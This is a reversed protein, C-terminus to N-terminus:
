DLLREFDFGIDDIAEKIIDTEVLTDMRLLVKNEELNVQVDEIGKLALLAKEVRMKCHDCSMGKIIMTKEM